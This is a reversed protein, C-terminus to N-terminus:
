GNRFSVRILAGGFILTLTMLVFSLGLRAIPQWPKTEMVVADHMSKLAGMVGAMFIVTLLGGMLAAVLLIKTILKMELEFRRLDAARAERRVSSKSNSAKKM